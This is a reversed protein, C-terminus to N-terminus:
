QVAYNKESKFGYDDSVIKHMWLNVKQDFLLPLKMYVM